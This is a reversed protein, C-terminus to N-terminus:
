EEFIFTLKSIEEKAYKLTDGISQHIKVQIQDQVPIPLNRASVKYSILGSKQQSDIKVQVRINIKEPDQQHMFEKCSFKWFEKQNKEESPYFYFKHPDKKQFLAINKFYTSSLSPKQYNPILTNLSRGIPSKPPAPINLTAPAERMLVIDGRAGIELITIFSHSFGENSLLLTFEFSNNRVLLHEHIDKLYDRLNQVWEPHKKNQYQLLDSETPRMGIMMAMRQMPLDKNSWELPFRAIATSILTDIEEMSLPPFITFPIQIQQSQLLSDNIEIAFLIKPSNNELKKIKEESQLLKRDNDDPEPALKWDDPIELFLFGHQKAVSLIAFDQALLGIEINPNTKQYLYMENVIHHDPISKDLTPPFPDGFPLDKSSITLTVKPKQNQISLQDNSSKLINRYVKNFEGARKRIRKKQSRKGNDIERLAQMPVILIIEKYGFFDWSLESLPKCEFILNTDIFLILKEKM